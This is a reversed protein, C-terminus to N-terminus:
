KQELLRKARTLVDAASWRNSQPDQQYAVWEKLLSEATDKEIPKVNLLLATHTDGSSPYESFIWRDDEVKRLGTVKILQSLVRELDKACVVEDSPDWYQAEEPELGLEKILPYTM